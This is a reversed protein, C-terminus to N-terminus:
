ATARRELFEIVGSLDVGASRWFSALQRGLRDDGVRGILRASGGLRTEMVCVNAADGGPNVEPLEPEPPVTLEALGEGIVALASM